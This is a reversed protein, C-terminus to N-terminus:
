GSVTFLSRLRSLIEDRNPPCGRVRATTNDNNIRACDGVFLHEQEQWGGPKDGIYIKVPRQYKFDQERLINLARLLPILCGSCAKGAGIIELFPFNEKLKERALEPKFKLRKLESGIIDIQTLNGEGLGSAAGLEVTAVSASNIGMLASGVVDVAVIDPSVILLGVGMGKFHSRGEGLRRAIARPTCDIINLTPRVIKCLEVVARPLDGRHFIPKDERKLCGKLNKMALTVKTLWHTKLVPLNIIKNCSFAFETIRFERPICGPVPAFTRYAHDDFLVWKIGLRRTIASIETAIFCQRLYSAPQYYGPGEGVVVEAAGRELCYRAVAEVLEPTTIQGSEPDAPEVLNPKILVRDGRVVPREKSRDLTAALTKCLGEEIGVISVVTM